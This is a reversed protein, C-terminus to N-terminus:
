TIKEGTETNQIKRYVMSLSRLAMKNKSEQDLSM